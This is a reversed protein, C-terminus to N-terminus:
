LKLHRPNICLKNDCLHMVVIGKPIEVNYYNEYIYRHMGYGKGNRRIRPYGSTMLAHSICEWCDNKIIYKISNIRSAKKPIERNENYIYEIM